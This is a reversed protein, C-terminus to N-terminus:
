LAATAAEISALTIAALQELEAETMALPPMLVVVNGLPRLSRASSARRSASATAPACRTPTDGPRATACSSSASWSAASASRASTPWAPRRGRARPALAEIKARCGGAIAKRERLLELSPSRRRAPSRTGPTPTATSSPGSRRSRASSARTSASPRSPRPSRCTAAPSGRRWTMLDPCSARRSARSCRGPAASAPRSRTASSCCATATACSACGACTAPRSRRDDRRRGPRAARGRARRDERRAARPRARGRGRLGHRVGAASRRAPLPLLVAAPRPPRRLPAARLDPPLPRHRRGLGCGITDGHYAGRLAVFETRRRTAASSTTSSRWRSRSRSPPRGPTPSSSAPSARRRSRPSRRPASSRRRPPSASCRRTPSGSRAAARVAEDLEPVRHGHVNCWLSSVGDLYRNGLTDVLYVGEAEDM